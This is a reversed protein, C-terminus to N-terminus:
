KVEHLSFQLRGAEDVEILGYTCVHGEQRPFSISGPNMLTIGNEQRLVPCHTHGCLVVDAGKKRAAALLMGWESRIHYSHGHTLMVESAGVPLLKDKPLMSDYDCNGRVIDLPCDCIRRIEEQMGEADGLHFVRDPRVRQVVRELTEHRRHTDSIVLIKM